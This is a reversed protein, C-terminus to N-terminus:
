PCGDPDDCPVWDLASVDADAIVEGAADLALLSQPAREGEVLLVFGNSPTPAGLTGGDRYRLVVRAVRDDALGWLAVRDSGRADTTILPAVSGDVFRRAWGAADACETVHLGLSFCADGTGRERFAVLREQGATAMVRPSDPTADGLWNLVNPAEGTPVPDGPADGGTFFRELRDFASALAERSPPIAIAGALLVALVALGTAVRLALRRPRRLAPARALVTQVDADTPGPERLGALSRRLRADSAGHDNM